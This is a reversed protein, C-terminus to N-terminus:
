FLLAWNRAFLKTKTNEKVQSECSSRTCSRQPLASLEWSNGGGAQATCGLGRRAARLLQGSTCSHELHAAGGLLEGRAAPGSCGSNSALKSLPEPHISLTPSSSTRSGGPMTFGTINRSSRPLNKNRGATIRVTCM